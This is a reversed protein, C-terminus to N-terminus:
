ELTGLVRLVQGSSSAQSSPLEIEGDKELETTFGENITTRKLWRAFFDQRFYYTHPAEKMAGNEAEANPVEWFMWGPSRLVREIEQKVWDIDQVHELSHSGYILDISNSPVQSISKLIEWRSKYAQPMSSPEINVVNMGKWWLLHSIGGHGAGFNLITKGPVLIQPIREALISLHILDRTIVAINKDGREQWYHHFYYHELEDKKPMPNLYFYTGDHSLNVKSHGFTKRAVQYHIRSVKTLNMRIGFLPVLFRNLVEMAFLFMGRSLLYHYANKLM